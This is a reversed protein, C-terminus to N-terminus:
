EYDYDGKLMREALNLMLINNYIINNIIYDASYGHWIRYEIMMKVVRAGETYLENVRQSSLKVSLDTNCGMILRLAKCDEKSVLVKGNIIDM